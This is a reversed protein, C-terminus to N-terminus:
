SLNIINNQYKELFELTILINKQFEIKGDIELYLSTKGEKLKDKININLFIKKFKSFYQDLTYLKKIIYRTKINEIELFVLEMKTKYLENCFLKQLGNQEFFEYAYIIKNDKTNKIIPKTGLALITGNNEIDFMTKNLKLFKSNRQLFDKKFIYGLVNFEQIAKEYNTQDITEQIEEFYDFLSYNSNNKEKTQEIQKNRNAEISDFSGSNILSEIVKKNSNTREIFNQISTYPGNKEREEIIKHASEGIGKINSIGFYIKNDIIDFTYNSKNICPSIVIINMNIAEQIIESLKDLNNEHIMASCLYEITYHYKLYATQYTIMGYCTSHSKNFGYSAFKALNDFFIEAKDITGGCIKVIGDVFKKKHLEMEHHIKKGMARRLLDAEKLSYGALNKAIELVQEQYVPVGYTEKLIKELEPYVYNINEKGHKCAIFKPIDDMPGPRYLAGAAIIDEFCDPKMDQLLRKFGASDLQFVSNTKGNGIMEYVNQDKIDINELDISINKRKLFDLTKHITSLATLGLIDFKVLGVAEADKMAFQIIPIDSNKEKFLPVINSLKINGIVVGAAHMSSHRPLGEVNEAIKFLQENESNILKTSIEKERLEKLTPPVGQFPAPLNKCLEDILTYPMQLVRGIDRLAARYQLTGFTIIHAVNEEGFKEQIFKIVRHRNIQCFDIDFDPLSVRDPNLFREFMLNYPIPDISTIELSYAVLSGAGSGRGPGVLINNNKAWQVITSVILFYECFQMKTIMEIEYDLREKYNKITKEHFEFSIKPLINNKLRKNFGELAQKKFEEKPNQIGMQPMKPECTSLMFNCKKALINSNEIAWPIDKFNELYEEPSKLYEDDFVCERDNEQLYTGNKICWLCDTEVFMDKDKFYCIPAAFIPLDYENSIKFLEKENDQDRKQRSIAIGLQNNQALEAIEEKNLSLDCLIYCNKFKIDNIELKGNKKLYGESLTNSIELYGDHNLCYAWIYGNSVKLACGTITKIGNKKLKLTWQLYGFINNENSIGIYNINYKKCYDIANQTTISSKLLSHDSYVRLPVLM